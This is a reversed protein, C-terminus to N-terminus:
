RPWHPLDIPGLQKMCDLAFFFVSMALFQGSLPPHRIGDLGCPENPSCTEHLDEWLMRRIEKACEDAKGTGLLRYGKFQEVHGVFTCPNDIDVDGDVPADRVLHSWLRYRITDVGYALYSQVWFDSEDLEMRNDQGVCDYFCVSLGM